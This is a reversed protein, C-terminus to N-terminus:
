DSEVSMNRDDYYHHAFVKRSGTEFVPNHNIADFPIKNKLLFERMQREHDDSRCTWIILINEVNQALSRMRAVVPQRVKGIDPFNNEVICGDFDFAHSTYHQPMEVISTFGEAEDPKQYAEVMKDYVLEWTKRSIGRHSLMRNRLCDTKNGKGFHYCEIEHTYKRALEIFRKRGRRDMNTRDIVVDFGKKLAASIVTEETQQYIERKKYDYLGYEGGAVMAQITDMSVIVKGQKALKSAIISKGMGINGIFLILKSM